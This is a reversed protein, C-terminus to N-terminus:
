YPLECKQKLLTLVTAAWCSPQNMPANKPLFIATPSVSVADHRADIVWYEVTGRTTEM